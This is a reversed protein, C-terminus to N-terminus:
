KKFTNVTLNQDRNYFKIATLNYTFFQLKITNIQITFYSSMVIGTLITFIPIILQNQQTLKIHEFQSRCIFLFINLM